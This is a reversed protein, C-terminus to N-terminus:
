ATANCIISAIITESFVVRFILIGAAMIARAIRGAGDVGGGGRGGGVVVIANWVYDIELVFPLCIWESSIDVAAFRM